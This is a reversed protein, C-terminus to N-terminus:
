ASTRVALRKFAGDMSSTFGSVNGTLMMEQLFNGVPITLPVYTGAGQYFRGSSVYPQLGSVIPSTQPTANKLPSFALNSLNYANLVSPQMLYDLFQIAATRQAPTQSRPLWIALDLNVRCKTQSADDTAPMAFTGMKLKPNIALVEGVAWPGQMYMGAQGSAFALNGDAYHKAIPNSNFYPALSLMKQCSATFDKGFSVSSNPGLNTGERALQQYFAAVDIMGGTTYDFLGQQITWADGYTQYVPTIGASKFKECVALFESWTTPVSSVGVKDFLDVNYIVGEAAVSYPLVSTEGQFSAYQTVLAQINPDILKAQPLSGLDALVGRAVFISTTLNYNDCDIAPPNGRVFEAILSSTFDHSVVVRSQSANFKAVLNNFYPVVEPKTEEFVINTTAGGSSSCGAVLGPGAIAAAGLGLAKMMSRRNLVPGGGFGGPAGPLESVGPGEGPSAHAATRHNRGSRPDNDRQM